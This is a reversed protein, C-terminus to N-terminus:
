EQPVVQISVAASEPRRRLASAISENGVFIYRHTASACDSLHRLKARIVKKTNPNVSTWRKNWGSITVEAICHISETRLWIDEGHGSGPVISLIAQESGLIDSAHTSFLFKASDLVAKRQNM